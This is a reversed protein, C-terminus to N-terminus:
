LKIDSGVKDSTQNFKNKIADELKRGLRQALLDAYIVMDAIEDMTMDVLTQEDIQFEKPFKESELRRLKKLKKLNNCAEGAEGAMACGWDTPSWQNIPHFSQECRTENACRLEDFTM